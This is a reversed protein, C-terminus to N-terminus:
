AERKLGFHCLWKGLLARNFMQVNRIELGGEFIPSYVKFWNVLHYKFCLFNHQLKEIYNAVSVLLTFSSMFYTPLNSLTSKILTVIGGKFLYM